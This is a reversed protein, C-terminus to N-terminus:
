IDHKEINSGARLSASPTPNWLQTHSSPVGAGVLDTIIVTYYKCVQAEKAVLARHM